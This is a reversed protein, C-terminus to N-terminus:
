RAVQNALAVRHATLTLLGLLVVAGFQHTVSVHVAAKHFWLITLVGLLFQATTAAPVLWFGRAQSRYLQWGLGLSALLVCAGLWRHIWQVLAPLNVAASWVSGAGELTAGPFFHGGMLPYTNFLLGAKLGAVFAGYTLQLGLLVGFAMVWKGATSARLGGFRAAGRRLDLATWVLLVFTLLATMLHAALRFHSVSPRDVLGSKVMLWGLLGQFAGLGILLLLRNRLPAALTRRVWFFIMPLVMYLGIFRGLLRHGYEWWFINKFQALDYHANVQEFQPTAQYKAFLAQWAADSTPPLAGRVVNWETISLGSGTLRTAGGVLVMAAVLFAAGWLWVQQARAMRNEQTMRLKYRM